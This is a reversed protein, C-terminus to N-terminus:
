ARLARFGNSLCSGLVSPHLDHAQLLHNSIHLTRPPPYSGCCFSVRVCGLLASGLSAGLLLLKM